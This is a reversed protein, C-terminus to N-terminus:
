QSLQKAAQRIIVAVAEPQSVYVAHSGRTETVTAGARKAMFRQAPPPIMRDDTAFLYWSPKAKWAQTATGNLSDAKPKGIPSLRRWRGFLARSDRGLPRKSKRLAASHAVVTSRSEIHRFERHLSGRKRLKNFAAPYRSRTTAFSQRKM